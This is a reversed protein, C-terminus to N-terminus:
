LGKTVGATLHGDQPDGASSVLGVHGEHSEGSGHCSPSVRRAGFARPSRDRSPPFTSESGSRVRSASGPLGGRASEELGDAGDAFVGDPADERELRDSLPLLQSELEPAM